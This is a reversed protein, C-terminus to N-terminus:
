PRWLGRGDSLASVLGVGQQRVAEIRYLAHFRESRERGQPSQQIHLRRFPTRAKSLIRAKSQLLSPGGVPLSLVSYVICIM